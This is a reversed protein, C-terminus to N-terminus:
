RLASFVRSAQVIKMEVDGDIRGYAAIRSGLYQLDDMFNIEGGNVKVPSQDSGITERGTELHRIKPISM